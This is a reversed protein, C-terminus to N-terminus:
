EFAIASATSNGKLLHHLVTSIVLWCQNWYGTQTQTQPKTGDSLLNNSSGINVLTM